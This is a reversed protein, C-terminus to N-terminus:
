TPHRFRIAVAQAGPHVKEEGDRSWGHREYFAIAPANEKFTWLVVEDYPLGALRLMAAKMLAEGAGQRWRDPEVYIAVLEAVNPRLDPERSPAAVFCYGAFEGDIEAVYSFADDVPRLLGVHIEHRWRLVPLDAMREPAVIDRYATRWGAATVAVIADTDDPIANRVRVSGGVV